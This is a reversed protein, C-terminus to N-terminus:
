RLAAPEDSDSLPPTVGALDLPEASDSAPQMKSWDVLAQPSALASAPVTAPAQAQPVEVVDSDGCAALALTAAVLALLAPRPLTPHQM